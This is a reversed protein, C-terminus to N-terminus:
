IHSHVKTNKKLLLMLTPNRFFLSTFYKLSVNFFFIVIVLYLLCIYTPISWKVADCYTWSVRTSNIFIQEATPYLYLQYKSKSVNKQRSSVLDFALSARYEGYVQFIVSYCLMLWDTYVNLLYVTVSGNWVQGTIILASLHQSELVLSLQQKSNHTFRFHYSYVTRASAPSSLALTCHCFRACM